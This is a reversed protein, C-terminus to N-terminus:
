HDARFLEWREFAVMTIEGELDLSVDYAHQVDPAISVVPGTMGHFASDENRIEVIDGVEVPLRIQMIDYVKQRLCEISSNNDLVVSVSRMFDYSEMEQESAHDRGVGTEIDRQILWVEGGAQVIAEAENAFRCDTFMVVRASSARADRIGKNVWTDLFCNRGWETGLQQLAFRPTLCCDEMSERSNSQLCCACRGGIFPGHERPYRPDPKNRYESPGYLQLDTFAYVEQCFRKMPAAFSLMHSDGCAEAIFSAVTDKGAGARGALAIIRTM